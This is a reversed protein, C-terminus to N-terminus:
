VSMNRDSKHGDGPHGVTVICAIYERNCLFPHVGEGELSSYFHVTLCRQLQASTPNHTM